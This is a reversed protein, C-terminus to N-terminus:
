IINRSKAKFYKAWLKANSKQNTWNWTRIKWKQCTQRNM